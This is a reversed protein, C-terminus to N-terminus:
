GSVNKWSVLWRVIYIAFSPFDSDKSHHRPPKQRKVRTQWLTTPTSIQQNITQFCKTIPRRGQLLLIRQLTWIITVIQSQKTPPHLRHYHHYLHIKTPNMLHKVKTLPISWSTQLIRRYRKGEVSIDKPDKSFIPDNRKNVIPSLGIRAQQNKTFEIVMMPHNRGFSQSAGHNDVGQFIAFFSMLPSLPLHLKLMEQPTDSLLAHGVIYKIPHRFRSWLCYAPIGRRAPSSYYGPCHGAAYQGLLPASDRSRWERRPKVFLFIAPARVPTTRWMLLTQM